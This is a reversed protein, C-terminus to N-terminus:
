KLFSISNVFDLALLDNASQQLKFFQSQKLRELKLESITIRM